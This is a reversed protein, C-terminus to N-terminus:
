RHCVLDFLIKDFKVSQNNKYGSYLWATTCLSNNLYMNVNKNKQKPWGRKKRNPTTRGVWIKPM